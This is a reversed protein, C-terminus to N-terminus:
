AKRREEVEEEPEEPPPPPQMLDEAADNTTPAPAPEPEQRPPELKLAALADEGEEGFFSRIRIDRQPFPIEVGAKRLADDIAWTYAANM